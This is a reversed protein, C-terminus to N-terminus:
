TGYTIARLPAPYTVTVHMAKDACHQVVSAVASYSGSDLTPRTCNRAKRVLHSTVTVAKPKGEGLREEWPLSLFASFKLSRLVKHYSLFEEKREQRPSNRITAHQTRILIQGTPRAM